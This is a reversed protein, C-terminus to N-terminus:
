FALNALHDIMADRAGVTDKQMTAKYITQHSTIIANLTSELESGAVAARVPSLRILPEMLATVIRNKAAKCVNFRFDKDIIQLINVEYNKQNNLTSINEELRQIDYEDRKEAAILAIQPEFLNRASFIYDPIEISISLKSYRNLPSLAQSLSYNNVYIGSGKKIAILGQVSLMQLAERLSTRSVGFM